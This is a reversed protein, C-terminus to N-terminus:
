DFANTSPETQAIEPPFAMAIAEEATPGAFTFTGEGTLIELTVLGGPEMAYLNLALDPYATRLEDFNVNGGM